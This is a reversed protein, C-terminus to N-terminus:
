KPTLTLRVIFFFAVAFGVIFLIAAFIYWFRTRWKSVLVFEKQVNQLSNVVALSADEAASVNLNKKAENITKELEPSLQLKLIDYRSVVGLVKRAGDVVPLPNVRHHEAFVQQLTELDTKPGVFLPDTNMVDAVTLKEIKKLEERLLSQEGAVGQFQKLVRAVTPIHMGSGKALLDYQTLIGLLVGESNVVPMGDFNHVRLVDLAEELSASPLITIAPVTMINQAYIEM